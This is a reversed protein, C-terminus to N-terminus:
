AAHDKWLRRLEAAHEPHAREVAGWDIPQGRQAQTTLRDVLEALVSSPSEGGGSPRSGAGNGHSRM